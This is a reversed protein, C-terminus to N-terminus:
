KAELTIVGVIGTLAEKEIVHTQTFFTKLVSGKREPAYEPKAVEPDNCALYMITESRQYVGERTDPFKLKTIQKWLEDDVVTWCADGGMLDTVVLGPMIDECSVHRAVCGMRPKRVLSERRINKRKSLATKWGDFNEDVCFEDWALLLEPTTEGKRLGWLTRIFM